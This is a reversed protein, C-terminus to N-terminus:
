PTPPSVFPVPIREIATTTGAPDPIPLGASPGITAAFMRRGDAGGVDFTPLHLTTVPAGDAGPIPQRLTVEAVAAPDTGLPAFGVVLWSGDDLVVCM